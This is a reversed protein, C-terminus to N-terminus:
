YGAAEASYDRQGSGVSRWDPRAPMDDEAPLAALKSVHCVSHRETSLRGDCDRGDSYAACEVFWGCDSLTYVETSSSWGEDTQGAEHLTVTDGPVLRIGQWREDWWTWFTVTM